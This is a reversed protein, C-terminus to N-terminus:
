CNEEVAIKALYAFIAKGYGKGRYDELIFIDELYLGPRGTFTSFNYFYLAFGVEKNGEMAFVVKAREEVFISNYLIEETAYVEDPLKEYISLEKIFYLILSTDEKSAERIWFGELNRSM